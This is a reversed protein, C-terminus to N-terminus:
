YVAVCQSVNFVGVCELVSYCECVQQLRGQGQDVSCWVAVCHLISCWGASRQVVSCQVAFKAVCQLVGGAVAEGVHSHGGNCYAAVCLLVGCYVAACWV